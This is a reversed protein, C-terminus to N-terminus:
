AQYEAYLGRDFSREVLTYRSAESLVRRGAAIWVNGKCLFESLMIEQMDMETLFQKYHPLLKM